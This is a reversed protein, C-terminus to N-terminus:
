RAPRPLSLLSGAPPDPEITFQPLNSYKQLITQLEANAQRYQEDVDRSTARLRQQLRADVRVGEGSIARFSADLAVASSLLALRFADRLRVCEAPPEKQDFWLTLKAWVQVIERDANSADLGFQRFLADVAAGVVQGEQAEQVGYRYDNVYKVWHIYEVVEPPAEPKGPSPQREVAPAQTVPPGAPFAPTPTEVVSPGSIDPPPPAETLPQGTKLAFLWAAVGLVAIVVAAVILRRPWPSRSGSSERRTQQRAETM